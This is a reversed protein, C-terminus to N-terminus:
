MDKAKSNTQHRSKHGGNRKIGRLMNRDKETRKEADDKM